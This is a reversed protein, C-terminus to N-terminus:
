VGSSFDPEHSCPFLHADVPEPIMKNTTIWRPISNPSSKKGVIEVITNPYGSCIFIVVDGPQFNNKYGMQSGM